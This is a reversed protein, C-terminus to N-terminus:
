HAMLVEAAKKALVKHARATPHAGDWFLFRNPNACYAGGQIEPTVCSDEVNTLGISGPDAVVANLIGFIDLNIIEVGPLSAQLLALNGELAANYGASALTVNQLIMEDVPSPYMSAVKRVRPTNAYNPLNPVLFKRAGHQYLRVIQAITNGVSAGIIVSPDPDFLADALDNAGIWMVYLTDGHAQNGYDDLFADVQMTLNFDSFVSDPVVDRARSRGVAYNTFVGPALMAPQGNNPLHLSHTLQELWTKGNTFHHGGVAYPASPVNEAEFPQISVDSFLTFFNGPDSLSDGFTVIRDYTVEATVLPSLVLSACCVMCRLINKKM